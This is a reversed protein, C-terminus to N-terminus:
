KRRGWIWHPVLLLTIFGVVSADGTGPSTIQVVAYTLSVGFTYMALATGTFPDGRSGRKTV